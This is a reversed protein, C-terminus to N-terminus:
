PYFDIVQAFSAGVNDGIELAGPITTFSDFLFLLGGNVQTTGTYTNAPGSDFSLQGSGTKILGGSGSISGSLYGSNGQTNFTLTNGGNDVAGFDRLFGATVNWTQPASPAVPHNIIQDAVSNDTIGGAGITLTSNTSSGLTFAGATNNFAVSNVSWNANMDPTLRTTGGFIIDATGNNAVGGAPTWNPTNTWHDNGQSGNWTWTAAFAPTAAVLAALGAILILGSPLRRRHGLAHHAFM